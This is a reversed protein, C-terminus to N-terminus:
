AVSATWEVGSRCVCLWVGQQKGAMPGRALEVGAVVANVVVVVILVM